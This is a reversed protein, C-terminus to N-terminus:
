VRNLLRKLEKKRNRLEKLKKSDQQAIAALIQSQLARKELKLAPLDYKERLRIQTRTPVAEPKPPEPAPEPKKAPAAEQAPAEEPAAAEEPAEVQAPAEEPAAAEEPAEVQAPVEEVAPAAEEGPIEVPAPAEESAAEEAVPELSPKEPTTEQAPATEEPATKVDQTPADGAIATVLDAKKMSSIGSIGAEKAMERLVAVTKSELEKVDM